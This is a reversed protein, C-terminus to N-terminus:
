SASGGVLSMLEEPGLLRVSEPVLKTGDGVLSFSKVPVRRREFCLFGEGGARLVALAGSRFDSYETSSYVPRGGVFSLFAYDVVPGTSIRDPGREVRVGDLRGLIEDIEM